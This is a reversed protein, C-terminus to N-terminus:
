ARVVPHAGLIKKMRAIEVIDVGLGVAGDIPLSVAATDEVARVTEEKRAPM